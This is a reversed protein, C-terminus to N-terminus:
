KGRVTEWLCMAAATALNLSEAKGQIPISVSAGASATVEESLGHAENGFLWAVPGGPLADVGLTLTGDMATALTTFGAERVKEMVVDIDRERAVATHFVSGASSRVAKSNLPDVSDGALIVAGAGLADTMRVITGVNGPDNCEVPIVLCGAQKGAEITAELSTSVASTDCVAFLGTTTVTESLSRAASDDILSVSKRQTGSELYGTLLERFQEAAPATVFIEVVAEARIAADVSNFGEVLFRGSKKRKAARHLQIAASVRPTRPTFPEDNFYLASNM